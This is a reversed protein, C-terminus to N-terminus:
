EKVWKTLRMVRIDGGAVRAALDAAEVTRYDTVNPHGDNPDLTAYVFEDANEHLYYLAILDFLVFVPVPVTGTFDPATTM